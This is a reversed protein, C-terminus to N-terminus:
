VHFIGIGAWTLSWKAYRTAPLSFFMATVPASSRGSLVAVAAAAGPPNEQAEKLFVRFGRGDGQLGQQHSVPSFIRWLFPDRVRIWWHWPDRLGAPSLATGMGMERQLQHSWTTQERSFGFDAAIESEALRQFGLAPFSLDSGQLKQGPRAWRFSCM